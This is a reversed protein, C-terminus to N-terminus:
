VPEENFEFSGLLNSNALQGVICYGTGPPLVIPEKFNIIQNINASLYMAMAALYGAPNGASTQNYTVASSNAGGAKKSYCPGPGTALNATNSGATLTQASGSSFMMSELIVNKGSGAPNWIQLQPFQAAVPAVSNQGLFSLNNLTRAKGGDIISVSGAVTVQGGTGPQFDVDVGYFLRMRYGPQASNEILLQTYPVNAIFGPNVTIPASATSLNTDQFHVTAVGQLANQDSYFSNGAVNICLAANAGTGTISRAVSLDIDLWLPMSNRGDRVKSFDVSSEDLFFNQQNNRM